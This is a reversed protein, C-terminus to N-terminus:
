SREAQYLVVPVESKATKLFVEEPQLYQVLPGIRFFVDVHVRAVNRVGGTGLPVVPM